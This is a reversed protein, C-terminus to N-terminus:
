PCGVHTFAAIGSSWNSHEQLFRFENYTFNDQGVEGRYKLVVQVVQKAKPVALPRILIGYVVSFIATTAGIGLALTVVAVVTFGPNKAIMRFAYRINQLIANM